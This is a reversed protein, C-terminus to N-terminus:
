KNVSLSLNALDNQVNTSLNAVIDMQLSIGNFSDMTGGYNGDKLQTVLGIASSLMSKITQMSSNIEALADDLYVGADGVNVSVNYSACNDAFSSVSVNVGDKSANADFTGNKLCEKLQVVQTKLNDAAVQLRDLVQTMSDIAKTVSAQVNAIAIDKFEQDFEKAKAQLDSLNTTADVQTKLNNLKDIAKQNAAQLKAKLDKPVSLSLDLGDGNASIKASGGNPGSANGSAGSSSVSGSASGGNTSNVSGSAGSSNVNVSASGGNGNISASLGTSSNASINISHNLSNSSQQLKTVNADIATTVQQKLTNFQTQTNQLASQVSLANTPASLAVVVSAAVLPIAALKRTVSSPVAKM